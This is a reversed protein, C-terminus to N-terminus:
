PQLTQFAEKVPSKVRMESDDVILLNLKNM